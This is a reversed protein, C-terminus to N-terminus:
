LHGGQPCWSGSHRVCGGSASLPQSTMRKILAVDGVCLAAPTLPVRHAGVSATRDGPGHLELALSCSAPVRPLFYPPSLGATCPLPETQSSTQGKPYEPFTQSLLSLIMYSPTAKLFDPLSLCSPQFNLHLRSPKTLDQRCIFFLFASPLHSLAFARAELSTCILSLFPPLPPPVPSFPPM